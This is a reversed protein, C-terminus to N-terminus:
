ETRQAAPIWASVMEIVADRPDELTKSWGVGEGERGSCVNERLM